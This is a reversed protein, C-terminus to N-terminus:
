PYYFQVASFLYIGWCIKLTQQSLNIKNQEIFQSRQILGGDNNELVAKRCNCHFDNKRGYIKHSWFWGLGGMGMINCTRLSGGAYLVGYKEKWELASQILTDMTEKPTATPIEYREIVCIGCENIEGTSVACKTGGIDFGIVYVAVDERKTEFSNYWLIPLYM